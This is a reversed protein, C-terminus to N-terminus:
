GPEGASLRDDDRQQETEAATGPAASGPPQALRAYGLQLWDSVAVCTMTFAALRTVKPALVLGGTFGTAVWQALCFPCTLLEGVAHRVGEGRVSEKLEANGASGEYSTFPARVPSLVSEKAISRALKHTALPVLVADRWGIEPVERDSARVAVALAGVLGAYAVLSRTYGELPRDEGPSYARTSRTARDRISQLHPAIPM